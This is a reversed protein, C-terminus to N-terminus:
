RLLEPREGQVNPVDRKSMDLHRLAELHNALM